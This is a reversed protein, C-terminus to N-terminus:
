TEDTYSRISSGMTPFKLCDSSLVQWVRLRMLTLVFAQLWPSMLARFKPCSDEPSQIVRTRGRIQCEDGNRAWNSGNAPLQRYGRTDPRWQSARDDDQGVHSVTMFSLNRWLVRGLVCDCISRCINVVSVLYFLLLLQLRLFGLGLSLGSTMSQTKWTRLNYWCARKWPMAVLEHLSSNCCVIPFSSSIRLNLSPDLKIKVMLQTWPLTDRFSKMREMAGLKEVVWTDSNCDILSWDFDFVVLTEMTEMEPKVVTHHPYYRILRNPNPHVTRLYFDRTGTRSYGQQMQASRLIGTVSQLSAQACTNSRNSRCATRRYAKTACAGNAPFKGGAPSSVITQNMELHAEQRKENHTTALQPQSQDLAFEDIHLGPIQVIAPHCGVAKCMNRACPLSLEEECPARSM